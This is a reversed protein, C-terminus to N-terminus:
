LMVPFGEAWFIIEKRAIGCGKPTCKLKDLWAM